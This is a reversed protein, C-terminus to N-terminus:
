FNFILKLFNLQSHQRLFDINLLIKKFKYCYKGPLVPDGQFKLPKNRWSLDRYDMIHICNFIVESFDDEMFLFVHDRPFEHMAGLFKKFM